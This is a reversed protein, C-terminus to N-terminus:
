VYGACIEETARHEGPNSVDVRCFAAGFGEATIEKCVKGALDEKLDAVIVTAGERALMHASSEGIGQAGGTIVAIKGLLGKLEM